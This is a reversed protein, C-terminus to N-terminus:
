TDPAAPGQGYRLKQSRAELVTVCIEAAKLWDTQSVKGARFSICINSYKKKEKFLYRRKLKNVIKYNKTVM